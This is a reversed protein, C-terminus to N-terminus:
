NTGLLKLLADAFVPVNKTNLGALSIRGDMLMYIHFDDRLKQVIPGKIGTFSFMGRQMIIHDWKGKVNRSVLADFLLRRVSNLRTAMGHCENLWDQKRSADNLVTSVIRAGYSPCTSYLARALQRIQSGTRNAEEASSTVCHVVGTREGYLGSIGMLYDM